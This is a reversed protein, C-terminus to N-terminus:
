SHNVGRVAAMAADRLERLAAAPDPNGFIASGAVLTDAGAAVARGITDIGIGGDVELWQHPKLLSSIVEIKETCEAIYSQGGFGPWVTMVLVLDVHQIVADIAEAPTGPNLSVGVRVGLKRIERVAALPETTTEIHFTISDAGAEVFAPAYRVPESIMLHTDLMLRTCKRMAAVLPVGFSINPVFHGDMVDLHLLDAGAAEVLQIQEALRGWDCNLLSPAIRIPHDIQTM